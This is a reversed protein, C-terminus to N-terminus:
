QTYSVQGAINIVLTHRPSRYHCGIGWCDSDPLAPHVFPVELIFETAIPKDGCKATQFRMGNMMEVTAADLGSGGTQLVHVKHLRGDIGVVASALVDASTGAKLNKYAVKDWDLEPASQLTARTPHDCLDISESGSPQTFETDPFDLSVTLDTLDVEIISHGDAFLLLKRAVLKGEFPSHEEFLSVKDASEVSSLVGTATDFCWKTSPYNMWMWQACTFEHGNRKSHSVSGLKEDPDAQLENARLLELIQRIRLPQFELSRKVWMKSEIGVQIEDYGPFHLEARWKTNSTWHLSYTGEMPSPVSDLIKVKAHLQFPHSGQSRIDSIRAAGAALNRASEDKSKDAASTAVLILLSWTVLLCCRM